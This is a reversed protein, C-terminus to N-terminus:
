ASNLALTAKIQRPDREDMALVFGLERVFDLMKRNSALIDGCMRAFGHTRAAEILLHMLEWAIGKNQWRDAVVIAFECEKGDPLGVYRGVAVEREGAPEDVVAIFAMHTDYDIETLQKLMQPSLERLMDMFRFYRSEDSLERVFAQEIGADSPRIPRLTVTTGDALTMKRILHQPYATM